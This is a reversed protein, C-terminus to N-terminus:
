INIIEYKDSYGIMKLFAVDSFTEEVTLIAFTGPFGGRPRSISGPNIIKTNNDFSFVNAPVHTHGHLAIFCQNEEMEARLSIYDFDVYHQHGHCIFIPQKNVTLIQTDPFIVSGKPFMQAEQNNKGIDFSVPAVPPDCNGRVFAIVPPVTNLFDPDENATELLECLDKNCDGCLVLADCDPGFHNVIKLLQYYSSHTDSLILIRAHNKTKLENISQLSGILNNSQQLLTIM